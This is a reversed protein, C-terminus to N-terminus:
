QANMLAKWADKKTRKPTTNKPTKGVASILADSTESAIAAVPKIRGHDDEFASMLASLNENDELQSIANPNHMELVRVQQIGRALLQAKHAKDARLGEADHYGIRDHRKLTGLVRGQLDQVWAMEPADQNYRFRLKVGAEAEIQGRFELTQGAIELKVAGTGHWERTQGDMLLEYLSAQSISVFTAKAGLRLWCEHSSEARTRGWKIMRDQLTEPYDFFERIMAQDETSKQVAIEAHLPYYISSDPSTRFETIQLFGEMAHWTRANMRQIAQAIEQHAEWLSPFPFKFLGDKIGEALENQDVVSLDRARDVLQKAAMLRGQHEEPKHLYNRGTAGRVHALERDFVGFNREIIAKGTPTGGSQKYSAMGVVGRYLATRDIRLRGGTVRSLMAEFDNSVAAAANECHLHCPYDRPLGFNSLWGALLHQVDRRSISTETGDDTKLRPRAVYALTRRTRVDILVILRLRVMQGAVMCRFDIDHDDIMVCEGIRLDGWDIRVGATKALLARGAGMGKLALEQVLDSPVQQSSFNACSWGPPPNHHSWPCVEPVDATPNLRMFLSSWTSGDALRKGSILMALLQRWAGERSAKDGMALYLAWFQNVVAPTVSRKEVPKGTLSKNVLAEDGMKTWKYYYKRVQEESLKIGKQESLLASYDRALARLKAGQTLEAHLNTVAWQIARYFTRAREPLALEDVPKRPTLALANGTTMLSDQLDM